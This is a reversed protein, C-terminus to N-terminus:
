LKFGKQSVWCTVMGARRLNAVQRFRTKRPQPTVRAAFRLCRARLSRSQAEFYWIRSGVGDRLASPLVSVGCHGPTSTGGPDFLPAHPCPPRGPVWSARDDRGSLKRLPAGSSCVSRARPSASSTAPAFCLALTTGGLSPFSARRSPRCPTPADRYYRHLRPLRGSAVRLLSPPHRAVSGNSPSM